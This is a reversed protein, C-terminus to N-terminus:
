LQLHAGTVEGHEAVGGHEGTQESRHGTQDGAEFRHGVHVRGVLRRNQGVADRFGHVARAEPQQRGDRRQHGEGHQHAARLREDVVDVLRADRHQVEDDGVAVLELVQVDRDRVVTVLLLEEPVQFVPASDPSIRRVAAGKTNAATKERQVVTTASRLNDHGASHVKPASALTALLREISGDVQGGEDIQHRHGDAEQEERGHPGLNALELDGLGSTGGRLLRRGRLGLRHLERQGDRRLLHAEGRVLAREIRNRDGAIVAPLQVQGLEGRAELLDPLLKRILGGDRQLRIVLDAVVDQHADDILAHARPKGLDRHHRRALPGTGGFSELYVVGHGDLNGTLPVALPELVRLHEAVAPMALLAAIGVQEDRRQDVHEDDDHEEEDRVEGRRALHQHHGLVDLQGLGDVDLFDLHVRHHHDGGLLHADRAVDHAPDLVQHLVLVEVNGRQLLLEPVHLLLELVEM